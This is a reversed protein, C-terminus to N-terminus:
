NNSNLHTGMSKTNVYNERSMKQLALSKTKGDFKTIKVEEEPSIEDLKKFVIETLKEAPNASDHLEEWTDHQIWDAIKRIRSNNFRRTKKVVLEKPPKTLRELRPKSYM